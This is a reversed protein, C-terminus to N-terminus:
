KTKHTKSFLTRFVNKRSRIQITAKKTIIEEYSTLVDELIYRGLKDHTHGLCNHLGSDGIEHEQLNEVFSKLREKDKEQFEVAYLNGCDDSRKNADRIYGYIDLPIDKTKFYSQSTRRQNKICVNEFFKVYVRDGLKFKLESM